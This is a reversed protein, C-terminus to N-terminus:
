ESDVGGGGTVSAAELPRGVEYLRQIEDMPMARTLVGVEDLLGFFRRTFYATGRNKAWQFDPHSPTATWNGIEVWGFSLKEPGRIKGTWVPQGNLYHTAEKGDFVLAVMIWQGFIEGGIRSPSSGVTWAAEPGSSANAVGFRITGNNHITWRVTGPEESDGTMLSHVFSNPLGDVRLWMFATFETFQQPLNLRVRDSVNAFALARKGPWRGEAWVCGVVLGSIPVNVHEARNVLTRSWYPENQLTFHLITTPDSDITKISREWMEKKRQIEPLKRRTLEHSTLFGVRNLPISILNSSTVMAAQNELLDVPPLSSLDSGQVLVHGSFVHVEEPGAPPVSLGFETGMDKVEVEETKLTFGHAEPPSYVWLRGTRCFVSRRSLLEIEAPAEFVVQAGNKFSLAVSGHTLNMRGPKLLAGEAFSLSDDSWTTEHAVTVTAVSKNFLQDRNLVIGVLTILAVAAGVTKWGWVTQRLWGTAWAYADNRDGAASDLVKLKQNAECDTQNNTHSGEAWKLTAAEHLLGHLSAHVWFEERATESLLLQQELDEKDASSLQGDFYLYFLEIIRERDM